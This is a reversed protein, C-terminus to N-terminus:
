LIFIAGWLSHLTVHHEFHGGDCTLIPSLVILPSLSYVAAGPQTAPCISRRIFCDVATSAVDVAVVLVEFILMQVVITSEPKVNYFVSSLALLFSM